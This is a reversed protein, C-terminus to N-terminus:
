IDDAIGVEIWFFKDLAKPDAVRGEYYDEATLINFDSYYGKFTYFKDPGMAKIMIMKDDGYKKNLNNYVAIIDNTNIHGKDKTIKTVKKRGKGVRVNEIVQNILPM